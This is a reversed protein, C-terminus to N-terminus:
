QQKRENVKGVLARQGKAEATDCLVESSELHITGYYSACTTGSNLTSSIASSYVKKALTPDALSKELPFTYKQLWDLLPMDLGLGLSLVHFNPTLMFEIGKLDFVPNDFLRIVLM